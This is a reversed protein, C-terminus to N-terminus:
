KRNVTFFHVFCSFHYRHNDSPNIEISASKFLRLCVFVNSLYQFIHACVHPTQQLPEFVSSKVSENIKFKIKPKSQTNYHENSKTPENNNTKPLFVFHLGAFFVVVFRRRRRFLFHVSFFLAFQSASQTHTIRQLENRKKHRGVRKSLNEFLYVSYLLFLSVYLM